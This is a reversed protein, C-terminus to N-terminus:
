QQYGCSPCALVYRTIGSSVKRSTMADGCRDCYVTPEYQGAERVRQCSSCVRTDPFVELRLPDIPKKCDECTAQDLGGFDDWEDQHPRLSVGTNNCQDCHTYHHRFLELVIEDDASKNRRFLGRDGLWEQMQTISLVRTHDCRSTEVLYLSMQVFSNCLTPTHIAENCM